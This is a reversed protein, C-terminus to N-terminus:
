KLVNGCDFNATVVPATMPLISCNGKGRLAGQSIDIAVQQVETQVSPDDWIFPM